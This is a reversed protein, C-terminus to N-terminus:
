LDIRQLSVVELGGETSTKRAEAAEGPAIAAIAALAADRYDRSIIANGRALGERLRARGAASGAYAWVRGPGSAIAASVDVREYNRERDDLERLGSADVPMCVGTVVGGPDPEIDLFCVFAAPRSGDSRLRYSKYGPIDVRNDMAAGWVRRWGRMVAVPCGDHEAALSGYGLVFESPVNM